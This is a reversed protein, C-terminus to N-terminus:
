RNLDRQNIRIKIIFADLYQQELYRFTLKARLYQGFLRSTDGNNIGNQTSDNKIPSRWFGDQMETFTPEGIDVDDKNLFSVHLPTAFDIRYPIIKTDCMIDGFSKISDPLENLVPESYGHRLLQSVPIYNVVSFAFAKAGTQVDGNADIYIDDITLSTDSEVSVVIYTVNNIKIGYGQQFESLFSTGIGTVIFSDLNKSVDGLTEAQQVDWLGYYGRDHEYMRNTRSVSRSSLIKDQWQLYINKIFSIFCEFSNLDEDYMITYENYYRNDSHSIKKWFSTNTPPNGATPTNNIYEYIEGTQEFNREYLNPEFKVSQGISYVTLANYDAITRQGKVTIYLQSYRKDWTMCIGSGAAPTDNIAWKLNNAFFSRMFFIDSINQTGDSAFRMVKKDDTNIWYLTEAGNLSVGKIQGWKHTAGVTSLTRGRQSFVNGSGILITNTADGGQFEGRTNFFQRKFARPQLSYLEGRLNWVGLVVGNVADEDYFSNPLITRYNDVLSGSPKIATYYFRTPQETQKPLDEDFAVDQQILNPYNYGLNYEFPESNAFLTVQNIRNNIDANGGNGKPFVYQNPIGTDNRMQSNIINQSYFGYVKGWQSSTQATAIRIYSKQTFVDQIYVDYTSTLSSNSDIDYSVGINVYKTDATDGYQNANPRYYQFQYVGFDNAMLGATDTIFTTNISFALTQIVDNLANTALIGYAGWLTNGGVIVTEQPSINDIDSVEHDVYTNAYCGYLEVLKSSQTLLATGTDILKQFLPQGYVYLRDGNIFSIDQNGLINDAFFLVGFQRLPSTAAPPYVTSPTIFTGSLATTESYFNVANTVFPSTIDKATMLIGSGLVTRTTVESRVIRFSSYQERITKGNPLVFDWNFNEFQIYFSYVDDANAPPVPQNTINFDSLTVLRRGGTASTDFKFDGIHYARTEVSTKRDKLIIGLRYTENLMASGKYFVNNPDQYEGFIPKEGSGVGQLTTKLLRYNSQQAWDTLDFEPTSTTNAVVLRNDILEINLASDIDAVLQNLLTLDLTETDPENGFHTVILEGGIPVSFTGIIDGSYSGDVYNVAAVKINPFFDRNIGSIRIQNAKSTSVNAPNGLINTPNSFNESYVNIPASLTSFTTSENSETLLSVSYRWNGANLAGGVQLQQEYNINVVPQALILSIQEAVSGYTYIGKPNIFNIAGDTIFDGTYYFTRVNNNKGDCYYIQFESNNIEGRCDIQRETRYNFEISRLLRTYNWTDDQNKVAVGIEGLGIPNHTAIAIRVVSGGAGFPAVFVSDLLVLTTASTVDIIWIGNASPDSGTIYVRSGNPINHPVTTTIEILGTSLHQAGSLIPVQMAGVGSSGALEYTFADIVSSIMWQGNATTNGLVQNINVYDGVALGHETLETIRIPITNSANIVDRSEPMLTQSTWFQFLSKNLELGGILHMEKALGESIPEQTTALLTLPANVDILWNIGQNSALAGGIEIIVNGFNNNDITRTVEIAGGLTTITTNIASVINDIATEVDNVPITIPATLYATGNASTRLTIDTLVGVTANVAIQFRKNQRVPNDIEYVFENGLINQAPESTNGNTTKHRINQATPLVRGKSISKIDTDADMGGAPVLKVSIDM